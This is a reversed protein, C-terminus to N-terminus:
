ALIVSSLIFWSILRSEFRIEITSSLIQLDIYYFVCIKHNRENCFLLNESIKVQCQM